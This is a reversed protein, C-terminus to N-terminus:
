PTQIEPNIARSEIIHVKYGEKKSAIPNHSPGLEIGYGDKNLYRLIKEKRNM